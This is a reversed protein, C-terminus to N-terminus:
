REDNEENLRNIEKVLFAKERRTAELDFRNYLTILRMDEIGQRFVEITRRLKKLDEPSGNTNQDQSQSMKNNGNKM